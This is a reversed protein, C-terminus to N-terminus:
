KFEIDEISGGLRKIAVKIQYFTDKDITGINKTVYGRLAPIARGDGYDGLYMALLMKNKTNSFADKLCKFVQDSKNEKGIRVLAGILGENLYNKDESAEIAKLIHEVSPNGIEVLAEIIEENLLEYQDTSKLLIKLIPVIVKELKWEGLIKVAIVPVFEDESKSLVENNSAFELFREVTADGFSALKEILPKPLDIDCMKAGLKFLDITVEFDNIKSLFERPSQNDLELFPTEEWKIIAEEVEEHAETTGRLLEETTSKEFSSNYASEIASNYSEFLYEFKDSM